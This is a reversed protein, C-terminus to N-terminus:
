SGANDIEVCGAQREINWYPEPVNKKLIELLTEQFSLLDQANFDQVYTEPINSVFRRCKRLVKQLQYHVSSPGRFGLIHAIRALSFGRVAHLYLVVCEKQSFRDALSCAMRDIHAKDLDFNMSEEISKCDAIEFEASKEVPALLDVYRSLWSIFDRVPIGADSRGFLNALETAFHVALFLLSRKKSITEVDRLKPNEPFSIEALDEEAFCAIQFAAPKLSMLRIGSPGRVISIEKSGRCCDLTRKYLYRRPDSDPYRANDILYNIFATKLYREAGCGGASIITKIFSTRECLFLILQSSIEELADDFIPIRGKGFGPVASWLSRMSIEFVLERAARRLLSHATDTALWKRLMVSENDQVTEPSVAQLRQSVEATDIEELGM